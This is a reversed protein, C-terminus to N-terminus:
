EPPENDAKTWHRCAAQIGPCGRGELPTVVVGAGRVVEKRQSQGRRRGRKRILVRSTASPGGPAEWIRTRTELGKAGDWSSLGEPTVSEAACPAGHRAHGLHHGSWRWGGAPNRLAARSTVPGLYWGQSLYLFQPVRQFCWHSVPCPLPTRPGQWPRLLYKGVPPGAQLQQAASMGPRSLLHGCRVLCTLWENQTRPEWNQACDNWAQSPLDQKEGLGADKRYLQEFLSFSKLPRVSRPSM